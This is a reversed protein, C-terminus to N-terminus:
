TMNRRLNYKHIFVTMTKGVCLRASNRCIIVRMPGGTNYMERWYLLVRKMRLPQRDLILVRCNVYDVVLIHKGDGSLALHFPRNLQEDGSGRQDGYKDIIHDNATLEYICHLDNDDYGNAVLWSEISTRVACATQELGNGKLDIVTTIEGDPSCVIGLTAIDKNLGLVTVHGDTSVFLSSM